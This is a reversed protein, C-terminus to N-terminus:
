KKTMEKRTKYSRPEVNNEYPALKENVEDYEAWTADSIFYNDKIEHKVKIRLEGRKERLKDIQKYTLKKM